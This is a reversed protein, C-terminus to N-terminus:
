WFIWAEDDFGLPGRSSHIEAVTYWNATHTSGRYPTANRACIQLTACWICLYTCKIDLARQFSRVTCTNLLHAWLPYPYLVHNILTVCSVFLDYHYNIVCVCYWRLMPAIYIRYNCFLVFVCCMYEQPFQGVWQSSPVKEKILTPRRFDRLGTQPNCVFSLTTFRHLRGLHIIM